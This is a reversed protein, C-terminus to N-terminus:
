EEATDHYCGVWGFRFGHLAIQYINQDKFTTSAYAVRIMQLYPECTDM